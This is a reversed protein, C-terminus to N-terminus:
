RKGPIRRRVDDWSAGVSNGRELADIRADIEDRHWDSFPLAVAEGGISDWLQEILELRESVPLCTLEATTSKDTM